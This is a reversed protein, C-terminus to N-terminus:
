KHNITVEARDKLTKPIHGIKLLCICMQGGGNLGFNLFMEKVNWRWIKYASLRSVPSILRAIQKGWLRGNLWLVDTLFLCVVSLCVFSLRAM